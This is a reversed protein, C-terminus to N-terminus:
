KVVVRCFLLSFSWMKTMEDISFHGLCPLRVFKQPMRLAGMILMCILSTMICSIDITAGCNRIGEERRGKGQVSREHEMIM